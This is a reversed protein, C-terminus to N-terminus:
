KTKVPEFRLLKAGTRVTIIQHNDAMDYLMNRCTTIHMGLAEAIAKPTNIGEGILEIAKQERDKRLAAMGYKSGRAAPKRVFDSIQRATGAPPVFPAGLLYSAFNM